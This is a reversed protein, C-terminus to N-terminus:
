KEEKFRGLIVIKGHKPFNVEVEPLNGENGDVSGESIATGKFFEKLGDNFRRGTEPFHSNRGQTFSFGFPKGTAGVAAMDTSLLKRIGGPHSDLFDTADVVWGDIM